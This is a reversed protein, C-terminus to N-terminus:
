SNNSSIVPFEFRMITGQSSSSLVFIKGGMLGILQKVLALGVGSGTVESTNSSGRSFPQFIMEFEAEPIGLGYDRVDFCLCNSQISLTLEVLKDAASYKIGNELVNIICQRLREQNVNIFVPSNNVLDKPLSTVIRAGWELPQLEESLNAVIEDARTPTLPLSLSGSESSALDVFDRVLGVGNRAEATISNLLNRDSLALDDLHRNLRNSSSAILTLPTILEHSISRMFLLQKTWSEQLREVLLNYSTVISQLEFPQSDVPVLEDSVVGSPRLSIEDMVEGLKSLPDLAKNMITRIVMTAFVISVIWILFLAILNEQRGSPSVGVDELFRLVGQDGPLPMSCTFYTQGEFTFSRPKQMGPANLGARQLLAPNGIFEDVSTVDPFLPDAEPRSLWVLVRTASFENLIKQYSLDDLKTAHGQRLNEISEGVAEATAMVLREHRLLRDRKIVQDTAILFISFSVTFLAVLSYGLRKRISLINSEM